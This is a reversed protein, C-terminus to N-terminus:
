RTPAVSPHARLALLAVDDRQPSGGDRDDAGVIAGEILRAVADAALGACRALLAGLGAEGLRGDPTPSDVVGDTYLLLM